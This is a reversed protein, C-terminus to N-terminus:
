SRSRLSPVTEAWAPEAALSVLQHEELPYSSAATGPELQGAPTLAYNRMSLSVVRHDGEYVMATTVGFRPHGPIAESVILFSRGDPLTQCAPDVCRSPGALTIQVDVSGAGVVNFGGRIRAEAAAHGPPAAAFGHRSGLTLGQEELLRQLTVDAAASQDAPAQPAEARSSVGGNAVSISSSGRHDPLVSYGVVAVFAALGAAGVGTTFRRRLRRRRGARISARAIAASAFPPEDGLAQALLERQLEATM